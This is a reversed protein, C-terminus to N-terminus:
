LLWWSQTTTAIFLSNGLWRLIPATSTNNLITVYNEFVWTEPFLRFGSSVVETQSRFSTSIGFIVPIIWIVCLILLFAYSVYKSISVNSSGKVKGTRNVVPRNDLGNVAQNSM